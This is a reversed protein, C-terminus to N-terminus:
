GGYIMARRNPVIPKPDVEWGNEPGFQPRNAKEWNHRRRASRAARSRRKQGPRVSYDYEDEPEIIDSLLLNVIIDAVHEDSM